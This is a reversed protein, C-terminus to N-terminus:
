RWRESPPATTAWCVWPATSRTPDPSGVAHVISLRREQWLPLLPAFGPHLGFGVGLDVLGNDGAARAASMALRPRLQRLTAEDLPPVAMIGDMAGRQFITVLVKRRRNAGPAAAALAARGLFAPGAGLTVLTMGGAKLFVRRDLM